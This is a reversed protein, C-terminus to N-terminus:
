DEGWDAFDIGDPQSGPTYASAEDIKGHGMDKDLILTNQRRQDAEFNTLIYGGDEPRGYIENLKNEAEEFKDLSKPYDRSVARLVIQAICLDPYPDGLGIGNSAYGSVESQFSEIADDIIEGVSMSRLIDPDETENEPEVM